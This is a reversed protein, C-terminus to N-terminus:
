KIIKLRGDLKAGTAASVQGKAEERIYDIIQGRYVLYTNRAHVKRLEKMNIGTLDDPLGKINRGAYGERGASIYSNLVIKFRQDLQQEIPKGNLTINVSKTEYVNQGLEIQYRIGSSFHLFGRSIFSDPSLTGGNKKYEEPRVIRKANDEIIEKIQAGSLDYVLIEDAYPMVKYWEAFTLDGELDVGRMGTANFAAFDVEGTPWNKSRTVVADNMFNAMAVEDHYRVEVTPQDALYPVDIVQGIPMELRQDLKAKLPDLIKRQLDLDLDAETETKRGKTAHLSATIESIESKQQDASLVFSVDGVFKGYEGAQLTPIGSLIATQDLGDKNLVTHTHGGFLLTPVTTVKAIAAAIEQDGIKLDYKKSQGDPLPGNYGVHSLIILADVQNGLAKAVRQAVLAPDYGKLGPDRETELYTDIVSTVGIFGLRAGNIDAVAAQVWPMEYKSGALNATLVPFAADQRIAKAFLKSGKDLEHNGVVAIDVGAKSLAHYPASMQFDDALSGLLEDWVTGIHEDGLSLFLINEKAEAAKRRAQKVIKSIQALRHTDGKRHFDVLHGHLDNIHFLRFKQPEKAMNAREPLSVSLAKDSVTDGKLVYWSQVQGDPNGAIKEVALQVTDAMALSSFLMGTGILGMRILGTRILRAGILNGWLHKPHWLKDHM